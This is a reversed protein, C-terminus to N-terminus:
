RPSQSRVTNKHTLVSGKELTSYRQHYLTDEIEQVLNTSGTKLHLRPHSQGSLDITVSSQERDGIRGEGM